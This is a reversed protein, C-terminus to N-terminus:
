EYTNEPLNQEIFECIQSDFEDIHNIILGKALQMPEIESYDSIKKLINYHYSSLEIEIKM